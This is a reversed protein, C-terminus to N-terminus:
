ADRWPEPVGLERAADNVMNRVDNAHHNGCCSEFEDRHGLEDHNSQSGERWGDLVALMKRLTEYQARRVIRDVLEDVRDDLAPDTDAPAPANVLTAVYSNVKSVADFLVSLPEPMMAHQAPCGNMLCNQAHVAMGRSGPCEDPGTPNCKGQVPAAVESPKADREEAHRTAEIKAWKQLKETAVVKPTKRTMDYVVYQQGWVGSIKGVILYRGDDTAIRSTEGVRTVERKWHWDGM